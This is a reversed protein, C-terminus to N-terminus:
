SFRTKMETYETRDAIIDGPICTYFDQGENSRLSSTPPLDIVAMDSIFGRAVKGVAHTLSNRFADCQIRFSSSALSAFMVTNVALRRNFSHCRWPMRVFLRPLTTSREGSARIDLSPQDGAKRMKSQRQEDNSKLL